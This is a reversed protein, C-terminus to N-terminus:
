CKKLNFTSIFYMWQKLSLLNQLDKPHSKNSFLVFRQHVEEQTHTHKEEVSETIFDQEKLDNQSLDWM